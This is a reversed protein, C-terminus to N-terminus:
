YLLPLLAHLFMRLAHNFNKSRVISSLVTCPTSHRDFTSSSQPSGRQRLSVYASTPQRISVYASTRQRVSVYASTRQRMRLVTGPTSHCDLLHIEPVVVRNM